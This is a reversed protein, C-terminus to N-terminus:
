KSRHASDCMRSATHAISAPLVAAMAAPIGNLPRTKYDLVFDGAPPMALPQARVRKEANAARGWAARVRTTRIRRGEAARRNEPRRWRRAGRHLPFHSM